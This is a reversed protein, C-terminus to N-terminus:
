DDSTLIDVIAEALGAAVTADDASWGRTSGSYSGGRSSRDGARIILVLVFVVFFFGAILMWDTM